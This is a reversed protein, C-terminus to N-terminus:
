KIGWTGELKGLHLVDSAMRELEGGGGAPHRERARPHTLKGGPTVTCRNEKSARLSRV